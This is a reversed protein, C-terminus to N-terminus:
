KVTIRIAGDVRVAPRTVILTGRQISERGHLGIVLEIDMVDTVGPALSSFVALLADAMDPTVVHDAGNITFRAKTAASSRM